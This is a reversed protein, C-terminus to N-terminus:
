PRALNRGIKVNFEAVDGPYRRAVRWLILLGGGLLVAVFSAVVPGSVVHAGPLLAFTAGMFLRHLRHVSTRRLALTTAITAFFVVTLGLSTWVIATEAGTPDNM